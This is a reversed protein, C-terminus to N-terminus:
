SREKKTEWYKKNKSQKERASQLTELSKVFSSVEDRSFEGIMDETVRSLSSKWQSIAKKLEDDSFKKAEEIRANIYDTNVAAQAEKQQRQLEKLVDNAENIAEKSGSM